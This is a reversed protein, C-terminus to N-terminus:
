PIKIKKKSHFKSKFGEVSTMASQYYKIKHELQKLENKSKEVYEEVEEDKKRENAAQLKSYLAKMMIKAKDDIAHM